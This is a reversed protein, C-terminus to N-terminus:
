CSITGRQILFERNWPNKQLHKSTEWLHATQNKFPGTYICLRTHLNEISVNILEAATARQLIELLEKSDNSTFNKNLNRGVHFAAETANNSISTFMENGSELIVAHFLM